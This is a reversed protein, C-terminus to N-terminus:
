PLEAVAPLVQYDGLPYYPIMRKEIWELSEAPTCGWNTPCNSLLEVIALGLGAQQVQFARRIAKRARLIEKVNHLSRRVSYGTGDITALLEAMRFPQGM